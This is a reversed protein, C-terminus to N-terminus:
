KKEFIDTIPHCIGCGIEPEKVLTSSRTCFATVTVQRKVGLFKKKVVPTLVMTSCANARKIAPVPCSQCLDQTWRQSGTQNGILRCEEVNKGRYYDGYFYPCEIGFPTKM